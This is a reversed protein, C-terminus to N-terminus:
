QYYADISINFSVGESSTRQLSISQVRMLRKATEVKQLFAFLNDYSGALNANASLVSGGGDKTSDSFNVSNLDFGSDEAIKSLELILSDQASSVPIAELLAQKVSESKAVETSLASLKAYEDDLSALSLNATEKQAKLNTISTRMPLVFLVAGIAIFLICVISILQLSQGQRM